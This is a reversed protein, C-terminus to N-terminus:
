CSGYVSMRPILSQSSGAFLVPAVACVPPLSARKAARRFSSDTADRPPPEPFELGSFAPLCESLLRSDFADDYLSYASDPTSSRSPPSDLDSFLSSATLAPYSSSPLSRLYPTFSSSSSFLSSPLALEAADSLTDFPTTKGDWSEMSPEAVLISVLSLTALTCFAFLSPQPATFPSVALSGDHCATFSTPCSIPYAAAPVSLLDHYLERKVMEQRAKKRRRKEVEHELVMGGAIDAAVGAAAALGLRMRREHEAHVLYDGLPDLATRFESHHPPAASPPPQSNLVRPPPMATLHPNGEAAWAAVGRKLVEFRDDAALKAQRLAQYADATAYKAQQRAFGAHMQEAKRINTTTRASWDQRPAFPPTSMVQSVLGKVEHEGEEAADTPARKVGDWQTFEAPSGSRGSGWRESDEMRRDFREWGSQLERRAIDGGRRAALLLEDGAHTLHQLSTQADLQNLYHRGARDNSRTSM